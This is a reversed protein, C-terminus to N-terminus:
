TSSGAGRPAAQLWKGVSCDAVDPGKFHGQTSPQMEPTVSDGACHPLCNSWADGGPFCLLM